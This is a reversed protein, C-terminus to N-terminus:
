VGACLTGAAPSVRASLFLLTSLSWFLLSAKSDADGGTTTKSGHRHADPWAGVGAGDMKARELIRRQQQCTDM